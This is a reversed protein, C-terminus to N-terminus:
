DGSADRLDKSLLGSVLVGSPQYIDSTHTKASLLPSQRNVVDRVSDTGNQLFLLLPRQSPQLFCGGKIGFHRWLLLRPPRTELPDASKGGM